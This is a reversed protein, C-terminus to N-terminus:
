EDIKRLVLEEIKGENFITSYLLEGTVSEVCATYHLRQTIHM